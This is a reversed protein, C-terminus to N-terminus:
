QKKVQFGNADLLSLVAAIKFTNMRLYIIDGDVESHIRLIRSVPIDEREFFTVLRTLCDRSRDDIIAMLVSGKEGVGFLTRYATNLDRISFIGVVRKDDLVPLAGPSDSDFFLLADDLTSDPGLSLCETSMIESVMTEQVREYVLRRESDTIISSPYASRLDRDSLIGLLESAENVVLLHRFHYENLLERAEPLFMGPHVTVPDPTMHKSIYM